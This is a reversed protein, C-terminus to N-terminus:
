PRNKLVAVVFKLENIEKEHSDFRQDYKELISDIKDDRKDKRNIERVILWCILAAFAGCVSILIPNIDAAFESSAQLLVM